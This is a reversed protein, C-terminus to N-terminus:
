QEKECKQKGGKHSKTFYKRWYREWPKWKTGLCSWFSTGVPKRDNETDALGRIQIHDENKGTHLYPNVPGQRDDNQPSKDQGIELNSM